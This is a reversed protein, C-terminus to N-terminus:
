LRKIWFVMPKESATAENIDKWSFATHLEARKQYGRKYWFKDLPVYNVPRSPHIMPREVACFVAYGCQRARAYEELAEFFKVGVGQGRYSKQLVLEGFYAVKDLPFNQSRFPYQVEEPAQNLLMATAAGVVTDGEFALVMLSDPSKAYNDLYRSECAEDGDCLYPYDRFIETRLRALDAIHPLIEAATMSQVRLNM